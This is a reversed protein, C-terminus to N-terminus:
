FQKDPDDDQPHTVWLYVGVVFVNYLILPIMIQWFGSM